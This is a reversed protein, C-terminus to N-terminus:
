VLAARGAVEGVRECERDALLAEVAHERRAVRAPARAQVERGEAAVRARRRRDERLRAALPERERAIGVARRRQHDGGDDALGADALGAGRRVWATRSAPASRPATGASACSSASPLCAETSIAWAGCLWRSRTRIEMWRPARIM